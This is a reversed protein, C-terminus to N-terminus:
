KRGSVQKPQIAFSNEMGKLFETVAVDCGALQAIHSVKVNILRVDGAEVFTVFFRTVEAANEYSDERRVNIEGKPYSRQLLAALTATTQNLSFTSNYLSPFDGVALTGNGCNKVTIVQQEDVRYAIGRLLSSGAATTYAPSAGSRPTVTPTAGSLVGAGLSNFPLVKFSYTVDASLGSIVTSRVEPTSRGDYVLVAGSGSIIETVTMSAFSSLPTLRGSYAVILPLKGPLSEFTVTWAYANRDLGNILVSVRDVTLVGVGALDQLAIKVDVASASFPLDVTMSGNFSLAFSGGLPETGTQIVTVNSQVASPLLDYIVLPYVHDATYNVMFGSPTVDYVIPASHSGLIDNLYTQLYESSYKAVSILEGLKSGSIYFSTWSPSSFSVKQITSIFVAVSTAIVQVEKYVQVPTSLTNVGIGQFMYVQYGTLPTGGTSNSSTMLWALSITTSDVATITPVSLSYLLNGASDAGPLIGAVVSLIPSSASKGMANKAVVYLRYVNGKSLGFVTYQLVSNGDATCLAYLPNTEPLAACVTLNTLSVPTEYFTSGPAAVWVSYGLIASGGNDVPATWRITITASSLTNGVLSSSSRYPIAPPLPVRPGRAAFVSPASIAGLCAVSSKGAACYNVARVTFHYSKGPQIGVTNQISPTIGVTFSTVTPQDTGDFVLHPEGGQWDDLYLMFGMVAAGGNYRPYSWEVQISTSTSTLLRVPPPAGPPRYSPTQFEPLSIASYGYGMINRAAVRVYYPRGTTLHSIVHSYPTLSTMDRVYGVCATGNYCTMDAGSGRIVEATSMVSVPSCQSMVSDATANLLAIRGESCVDTGNVVKCGNFTVMWEFGNALTTRTVGVSGITLLQNLRFSLHDSSVDAPIDGATETISSGTTVTLSFTGGLSPSSQKTEIVEVTSDIGGLTDNNSRSSVLKVINGTGDPFSGPMSMFTVTWQYERQASPGSRSVSVAGINPLAQLRTQMQTDSADSDILDTRYGRYDLTFTGTVENGAVSPVPYGGREALTETGHALVAVAVSSGTLFNMEEVVELAEVDGYISSTFTVAYMYGSSNTPSMIQTVTVGSSPITDLDILASTLSSISSPDIPTTVAGRFSLAYKGGIPASGVTIVSVNVYRLGLLNNTSAKMTPVNGASNVVSDFQVTFGGNLNYQNLCAYPHLPDIFTVTVLTLVALEQLSIKIAAADANYPITSTTYGDFTLRFSGGSADCVVRQVALKPVGSYDTSVYVLQVASVRSTNTSIVQVEHVVNCLARVRQVESAFTQTAYEIKYSSIRSGGDLAPPSFQLLLSSSDIVTLSSDLPQAPKQLLPVAYPNTAFAYPGQGVANIAAVRFYYAIGQDLGSVLLSLDTLDTIVDSGLPLDDSLDLSNFPPLVGAVTRAVVGTVVTGTMDTGDFQLLDLSGLETLFMISWTYGNNEDSASRIVEVEGIADLMQLANKMETTSVNYPLYISRAGRYSLVFNGSIASGTGAVLKTVKILTGHSTGAPSITSGNFIAGSSIKSDYVGVTMLPLNGINTDFTVRWSCNGTIGGNISMPTVTVTGINDLMELAAKISDKEGNTVTKTTLTDDGAVSIYGYVGSAGTASNYAQVRLQDIDGISSVFRVTWICASQLLTSGSRIGTVEVQDFAAFLELAKSISAAAVSCDGSGSPNVSILGSVESRYQIRIMLYVSVDDDGGFRTTDSTSTSITQVETVSSSCRTSNAYPLLHIPITRHGEYDLVMVTSHNVSINHSITSVAIMQVDKTSGVRVKAVKVSVGKGTLQSNVVFLKQPGETLKSYNELFSVSWSYGLQGDPGMRSISVAGSLATFRFANQLEAATANYAIVNSVLSDGLRNTFALTFTGGIENGPVITTVVIQAATGPAASSVTLRSYDPILKPQYGSNSRSVFQVIWSYGLQYDPGAVSVQVTGITSLSELAVRVDNDSADYSLSATTQGEFTLRFTGGVVNGNVPTDIIVDAGIPSLSAFIATMKPVDGMSVPFTILYIYEGDSPSVLTVTVAENINSMSQMISSVDRGDSSGSAPYDIFIDGSYQLSGGTSSTDLILFFSGGTAGTITIRQIERVSTANITVLQQEQIVTASTIVSQIENAGGYTSSTLSQM